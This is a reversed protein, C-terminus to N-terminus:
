GRDPERVFDYAGVGQIIMFKCRSDDIGHVYHATGSPVAHREGPNLAVVSNPTRTEIVVVGELCVFSDTVESHRHWPVSQGAALTLVQVRLDTGEAM